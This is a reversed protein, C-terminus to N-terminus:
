CIDAKTAPLAVSTAVPVSDMEVDDQKSVPRAIAVAVNTSGLSSEGVPIGDAVQAHMCAHTHTHAHACAHTRTHTRAHTSAYAHM